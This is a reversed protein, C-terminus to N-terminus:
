IYWASEEMRQIDDFWQLRKNQLCETMSKLKLRSTRRWFHLRLSIRADNRVLSIM